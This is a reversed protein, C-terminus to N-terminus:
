SRGVTPTPPALEPEGWAQHAARCVQLAADSRASLREQEAPDARREGAAVARLYEAYAQRAEVAQDLLLRSVTAPPRKRESTM